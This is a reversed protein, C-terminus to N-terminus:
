IQVVFSTLINEKLYSSRDTVELSGGASSIQAVDAMINVSPLQRVQTEM